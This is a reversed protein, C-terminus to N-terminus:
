VQIGNISSTLKAKATIDEFKLNGKNLYLKNDGQNSTFFIDPKGDNNIDGIAVGGGNYFNHYNLINMERTDTVTNAFSIGTEAAPLLEFLTEKGSEEEKPNCSVMFFLCFYVLFPLCISRYPM